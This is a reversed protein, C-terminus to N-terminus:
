WNTDAEYKQSILLDGSLKKFKLKHEETFYNKWDGSVAKREFKTNDGEGRTRGSVSAFAHKSVIRYIENQHLHLKYFDSVRQLEYQTNALLEEYKILLSKEADRRELWNIIWDVHYVLINDIYYNLGDVVDLKSVVNHNRHGTDVNKVYFYWSVAVDRLDRYLICYRINNDNLVALNDFTARTHLRIVVNQNGIGDFSQKCLNHNDDSTNHPTFGQVGEIESLLKFFWTTGSKPLGAVFIINNRCNKSDILLNHESSTTKTFIKRLM